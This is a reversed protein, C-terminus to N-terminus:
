VLVLHIIGYSFPRVIIWKGWCSLRPVSKAANSKELDYWCSNHWDKCTFYAHLAIPGNRCPRDMIQCWRSLLKWSTLLFIASCTQLTASIHLLLLGTYLTSFLAGESVQQGRHFVHAKWRSVTFLLYYLERSWPCTSLNMKLIVLVETWLLPPLM